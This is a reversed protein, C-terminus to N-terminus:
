FKKGPSPSVYKGIEKGIVSFRYGSGQQSVLFAHIDEASARDAKLSHGFAGRGVEMADKLSQVASSNGEIIYPAYENQKQSSVKVVLRDGFPDIVAFTFM